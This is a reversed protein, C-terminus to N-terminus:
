SSKACYKNSPNLLDRTIVFRKHLHTKTECKFNVKYSIEKPM